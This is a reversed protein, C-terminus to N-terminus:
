FVTLWYTYLNIYYENQSEVYLNIMFEEFFRGAPQLTNNFSSDVVTWVSNHYNQHLIVEVIDFNAKLGIQLHVTYPLSTKIPFFQLEISYSRTCVSFCLLISLHSPSSNM